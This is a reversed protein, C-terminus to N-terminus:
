ISHRLTQSVFATVLVNMLDLKLVGGHSYSSDERQCPVVLRLLSPVAVHGFCVVLTDSVCTGFFVTFLSEVKSFPSSSGLSAILALEVCGDSVEVRIAAALRSTARPM